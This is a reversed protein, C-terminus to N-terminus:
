IHCECIGQITTRINLLCQEFHVCTQHFRVPISEGPHLSWYSMLRQQAQPLSLYVILGCLHPLHPWSHQLDEFRDTASYAPLVNLVGMPRRPADICCAHCIWPWHTWKYSKQVKRDMVLCVCDTEQSGQYVGVHETSVVSEMYVKKGNQTAMFCSRLHWPSAPHCIWDIMFQVKHSREYCNYMAWHSFFEPVSCQANIFDFFIKM